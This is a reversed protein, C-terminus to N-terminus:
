PDLAGIVIPVSTPVSRWPEPAPLVSRGPCDTGSWAAVEPGTTVNDTPVLM